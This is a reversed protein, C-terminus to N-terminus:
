RGPRRPLRLARCGARTSGSLALAYEQPTLGYIGQLVYTAGALYAFLAAYLFGQLLVAGLFVRDSLLVRYDRGPRPRLRRAHASRRCRSASLVLVALLILVGIGALFLFLGRWDTVHRLQGGLLPGVIAALGGLVTLRGYYRILAGGSYLDRGAAQAIM